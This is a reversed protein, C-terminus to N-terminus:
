PDLKGQIKKFNVWNGQKKPLFVPNQPFFIQNGDTLPHTIRPNVLNSLNAITQAFTKFGVEAELQCPLLKHHGDQEHRDSWFGAFLFGDQRKGLLSSFQDLSRVNLM